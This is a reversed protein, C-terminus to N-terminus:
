WWVGRAELSQMKLHGVAGPELFNPAMLVVTAVLEIVTHLVKM